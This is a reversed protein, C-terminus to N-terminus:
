HVTLADQDVTGFYVLNSASTTKTADVAGGEIVYTGAAIGSFNATLAPYGLIPTSTTIPGAAFGLYPVPSAMFGKSSEYWLTSGDPMVIRVFPYCPVTLPWVNATM